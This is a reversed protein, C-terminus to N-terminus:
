KKRAAASAAAPAPKAGASPTGPKGASKVSTSSGSRPLAKAGAAASSGTAPRSAAAAPTGPKKAAAGPTATRAPAPAAPKAAAAPRAAAVAPKSSSAAPPAKDGSESMVEEKFEDEHKSQVPAGQSQADVDEMVDEPLASPKPIDSDNADEGENLRSKSVSWSDLPQSGLYQKRKTEAANRRISKLKETLEQIIQDRERVSAQVKKLSSKLKETTLRAQEKMEELKIKYKQLAANQTAAHPDLQVKRVRRAFELSFLTEQAYSDAPSVCVFMMTKSNGGLADQLLYTLKSNRYPVYIKDKADKRESLAKMVDGLASLSKNIYNAEKLRQGQSESNKLRESGALDVLYLKGYTRNLTVQDIGDVTVLLIAHSRSSHENANTARTTRNKMGTAVVAAVDDPNEVQVHTTNTVYMGRVNRRIQLKGNNGVPEDDDASNAELGGQRNTKSVRPGDELVEDSYPTFEDNLLDSIQENYIELM